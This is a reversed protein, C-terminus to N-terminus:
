DNERLIQIPISEDGWRLYCNEKGNSDIGDEIIDGFVSIVLRSELLGYGRNLKCGVTPLPHYLGGTSKSKVLKSPEFVTKMTGAWELNYQKCWDLNHDNISSKSGSESSPSIRKFVIPCDHAKIWNMEIGCPSIYDYGPYPDTNHNPYLNKPKKPLQDKHLLRQFFFDLFKPDSFQTTFNKHKTEALHLHGQLNIEYFYERVPKPKIKTSDSKIATSYSKMSIRRKQFIRIMILIQHVKFESKIAECKFDICFGEEELENSGINATM